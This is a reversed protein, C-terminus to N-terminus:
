YMWKKHTKPLEKMFESASHFANETTNGEGEAVIEPTTETIEGEIYKRPHEVHGLKQWCNNRCPDYGLQIALIISRVQSNCKHTFSQWCFEVLAYLTDM